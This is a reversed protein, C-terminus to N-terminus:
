EEILIASVPCDAAAERVAAQEGEPPNAVLVVALGDAHDLEFVEPAHVVCNGYGCCLEQDIEVRM